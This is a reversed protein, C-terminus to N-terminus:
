KSLRRFESLVWEFKVIFATNIQAQTLPRTKPIDLEYKLASESLVFYDLDNVEYLMNRKYTKETKIDHIPGDLEFFIERNKKLYDFRLVIDPPHIKFEKVQDERLDNHWGQYEDEGKSFLMFPELTVSMQPYKEMIMTRIGALKQRDTKPQANIMKNRIQNGSNKGM